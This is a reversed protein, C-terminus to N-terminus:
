SILLFDKQLWGTPIFNYIVSRSPFFYFFPATQIGLQFRPQTRWKGDVESSSRPYNIQISIAPPFLNEVIGVKLKKLEKLM